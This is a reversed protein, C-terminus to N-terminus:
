ISYHALNTRTKKSKKLQQRETETIDMGSLVKGLVAARAGFHTEDIILLDATANQLIKHRSKIEKTSGALDQLTLFLVINTCTEQKGSGTKFPRGYLERFNTHASLSNGDLFRYGEFDIHSEVTQQWESRVDAKASVIIVLKAALKKVCWMSTISKGFRMVAYMLLNTRGKDVAATLNDIVQQQNERPRFKEKREFHYEIREKLNTYYEYKGSTQYNRVIDSVADEVDSKSVSEFFEKSHIQKDPDLTLQAFGNHLLNKHVAYDRFFVNEIVTAKHRSVEQLNPYYRRWEGLREDVPRYTDGIKLCNPLANTAFSYIHPEVRGTVIRKLESQDIAM